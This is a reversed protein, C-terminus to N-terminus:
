VHSSATGSRRGCSHAVVLLFFPSFHLFFVLFNFSSPQSIAVLGKPPRQTNHPHRQTALVGRLWIQVQLFWCAISAPFSVCSYLHLFIKRKLAFNKKFFNLSFKLNHHGFFEIISASIHIAVSIYLSLAISSSQKSHIFIEFPSEEL